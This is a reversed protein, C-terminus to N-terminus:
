ASEHKSVSFGNVMVGAADLSDVLSQSAMRMREATLDNSADLRINLGQPGLILLAEVDGLQPLHMRLQSRWAVATDDGTESANEKEPDILTWEVNMGAWPQFQWQMQNTALAELQQYILPMLAEPISPSARHASAGGAEAPTRNVSAQIDEQAIEAQRMMLKKPNEDKNKITGYQLPAAGDQEEELGEEPVGTPLFALEDESLSGEQLSKSVLLSPISGAALEESQALPFANLKNTLYRLSAQPEQQLEVLMEKGQAWNKLHSEYFLGSRAVAQKLGKALVEPNGPSNSQLVKGKALFPVQTDGYRGTLLQSILRGTQSLSTQHAETNASTAAADLTRAVVVQARQGTVVLELVDGSKASHPLALTMSKGAVLAQFTGDPLPSQIQATFRQGTFFEPLSPSVKQVVTLSSASPEILGRLRSALDGPVM